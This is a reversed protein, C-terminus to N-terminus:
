KHGSKALRKRTRVAKKAAASRIAKPWLTAAKLKALAPDHPAFGEAQKILRYAPIGKGEMMLQLVEAMAKEHLWSLRTYHRYVLGAAIIGLALFLAAGAIFSPKRIVQVIPQNGSSEILRQQRLAELETRIEAASAFRRERKKELAKVIIRDLATSVGPNISALAAPAVASDRRLGGGIDGRYVAAAWM